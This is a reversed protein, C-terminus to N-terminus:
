ADRQAKSCNCHGAIAGAPSRFDGNTFYVQHQQSKVIIESSVMSVGWCFTPDVLFRSSNPNQNLDELVIAWMHRCAVMKAM